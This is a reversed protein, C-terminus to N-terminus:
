SNAFVPQKCNALAWDVWFKLWELRVAWCNEKPWDPDEEFITSKPSFGAKANPYKEYFEKHAKDIIDKHEQVLPFCGPHKRLLGFDDHYMLDELGVFDMADHWSSYSPWRSNSNDTPEGFAPAEPLSKSEATLYLTSELGDSTNFVVKLEGITLSYGM